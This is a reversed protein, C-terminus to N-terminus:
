QLRCHSKLFLTTIALNPIEQYQGSFIRGFYPAMKDWHFYKAEVSQSSKLGLVPTQRSQTPYLPPNNQVTPKGLGEIGNDTHQAIM